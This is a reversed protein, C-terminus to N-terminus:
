TPKPWLLSWPCAWILTFTSPRITFFKRLKSWWHWTRSLSVPIRHPGPCASSPLYLSENLSCTLNLPSVYETLIEDITTMYFWGRSSISRTVYRLGWRRSIAGPRVCHLGKQKLSWSSVSLVGEIVKGGFTCGLNSGLWRSDEPEMLTLNWISQPSRARSQWRITVWVTVDFWGLLRQIGPCAAFFFTRLMGHYASCCCRARIQQRTIIQAKSDWQAKLTVSSEEDLFEELVFSINRLDAVQSYNTFYVLACSM